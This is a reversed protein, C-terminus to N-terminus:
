WPERELLKGADKNFLRRFQKRADLESIDYIILETLDKYQWWFGVDLELEPTFDKEKLNNEFHYRYQEAM